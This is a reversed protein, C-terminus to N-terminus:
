PRPAGGKGRGDGAGSPPPGLTEDLWSFIQAYLDRINAPSWLMHDEGWYTILRARGGLRYRASFMQEAQSMPVYDRDATILLVPATIRDAALVPSSALYAELDVWPPGSIGGQGTELWGQQNRMMPGGEPLVRTVPTFEGWESIMESMGAWAIVSRYRQSRTALNLAVLGGWSHGAVAIRDAPLQPFAKLAADIALDVSATQVDAKWSDPRDNPLAASLVTYGSGALVAARLSYTLNFPGTWGQEVAGPYVEIVLGKPATGVPGSPLFLWSTAPRGYVDLHDIRTPVSLHVASLGANVRDLVREGGATMLSLSEVMGSARVALAAAPSIAVMRGSAGLPEGLGRVSIPGDGVGGGVGDFVQVRGGGDIGAVWTQHPATNARLRFAKDIDGIVVERLAQGADAVPAAGTETLSWLSQDAFVTAEAPGVAAVRTPPAALGETLNVASGNACARYWDFRDAEPRRALFIPQGDLWDAQVGRLQDIDAGEPRVRLDGRWAVAARGDSAVRLLAGDRWDAPDHRGWVLLADGSPSWRLLHPAVDWGEVAAVGGGDLAYMELRGRRPVGMQVVHDPAVPIVEGAKVVAVTQGNPSSAFDRIAGQALRTARGSALDLRMLAQEEGDPVVPFAGDETDVITRSAAEGRATRDWARTLAPGPGAYYRLLWPLSGDPRVLALLVDDSAWELAGGTTPMEPTLGTWRVSREAVMVVGLELRDGRVRYVALRRGDPSWPGLILGVAESPLLREPAADPRSLDVRWLDLITWTSRPGLDYRPASDYPGRKEYVAWRGDPSISARGFAETSVIDEVSLARTQAGVPSVLCALALLAWTLRVFISFM